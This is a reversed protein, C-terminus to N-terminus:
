KMNVKTWLLFCSSYRQKWPLSRQDRLLCLQKNKMWNCQPGSNLSAPLMDFDATLLNRHKQTQDRFHFFISIYYIRVSEIFVIFFFHLFLVLLSFFLLLLIATLHESDCVTRGTLTEQLM